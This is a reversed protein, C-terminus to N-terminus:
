ESELEKLINEWTKELMDRTCCVREGEGRHNALKELMLQEMKFADNSNEWKQFYELNWKVNTYEWPLHKNIDGIRQELDDTYGIKWITSDDYHLIYTYSHDRPTRVHTTTGYTPPIGVTKKPVREYLEIPTSSPILEYGTRFDKHYQRTKEVISAVNPEGFDFGYKLMELVLSVRNIRSKALESRGGTTIERLESPSNDTPFYYIRFQRGYKNSGQPWVYYPRKNGPLSIKKGTLNFYDSEFQARAEFKLEVEISTGAEPNALYGLCRMLTATNWGLSKTAM